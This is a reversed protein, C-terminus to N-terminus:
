QITVTGAGTFHSSRSASIPGAITLTVGMNISFVCGDELHVHVSAPITVNTSVTYTTAGCIFNVPKTVGSFVNTSWAQAGEFGRGNATGGTSPLDSVCATTKIGADAGTFGFDCRRENNLRPMAINTGDFTAIITQTSWDAASATNLDLEFTGSSNIRFRWLGQTTPTLSTNNLFFQPATGSIQAHATPIFGLLSITLMTLLVVFSITNRKLITM